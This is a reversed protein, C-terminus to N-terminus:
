REHRLVYVMYRDRDPGHDFAKIIQATDSRRRYNQYEFITETCRPHITFRRHGNKDAAFWAALEKVSEDVNPAGNRTYMRNAHFRGKLETASKDVVVFDPLPWGKEKNITMVEALHVDSLTMIKYHEFFLVLDGNKRLQYFGFTRPHSDGTYHGNTPDRKGVYGDDVAWYVPGGGHIYDAAESVNGGPETSFMPYVLGAGRMALAEADSNPYQEYLDDIAGRSEAEQKQLEYWADDRDPRARWSLFIPKYTSKGEKAARYIKKFESDPKNKDARSLIIMKGGADIAPKVSRMMHGQDPVLDFEDAIALTFTYSDGANPPFATAQSGNALSFHHTNSAAVDSRMWEPLRQHIGKLRFDVLHIAEDDRRSFCGITAKPRFEMLWLAYGLSLWTMGIQRAKLVVILRENQFIRTVQKQASWLHFPIWDLSTADYVQCYHHIFYAASEACTLWENQQTKNM